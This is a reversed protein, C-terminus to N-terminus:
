VVGNASALQLRSAPIFMARCPPMLMVIDIRRLTAVTRPPLVTAHSSSPPSFYRSFWRTLMKTTQRLHAHPPVRQQQMTAATVHFLSCSLLAAVHIILTLDFHVVLMAHAAHRADAAGSIVHCRPTAAFIARPAAAFRLLHRKM